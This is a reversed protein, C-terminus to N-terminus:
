LKHCNTITRLNCILYMVFWSGDHIVNEQNMGIVVPSKGDTQRTPWWSCFGTEAATLFFCQPNPPPTITLTNNERFGISYFYIFMYLLPQLYLLCFLCPFLCVSSSMGGTLFDTCYKESGLHLWDSNHEM